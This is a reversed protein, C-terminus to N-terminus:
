EKSQNVIFYSKELGKGYSFFIDRLDRYSEYILEKLEKKLVESIKFNSDEKPFFIEIRKLAKGVLKQSEFSLVEDLYILLLDKETKTPEM